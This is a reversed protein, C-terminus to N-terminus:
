TDSTLSDTFRRIFPAAFLVVPLMTAWSILWFKSWHSVFDGNEVFPISAICTTVGCTIFSQVVGYFFHGYRKSVKPIPFSM